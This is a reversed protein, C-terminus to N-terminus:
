SYLISYHKLFIFFIYTYSKFMHLVYKIVLLPSSRELFLHNYPLSSCTITPFHVAPYLFVFIQQCTSLVSYKFKKKLVMWHIAFNWHIRVIKKLFVWLVYLSLNFLEGGFKMGAVKCQHFECVICGVESVGKIDVLM